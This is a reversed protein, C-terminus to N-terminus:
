IEGEYEDNDTTYYFGGMPSEHVTIEQDSDLYAIELLFDAYDRINQIRDIYDKNKDELTFCIEQTFSFFADQVTMKQEM